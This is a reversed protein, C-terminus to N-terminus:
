LKEFFEKFKELTYKIMEDTLAPHCGIFFTGFMAKDTNDLNNSIRYKIGKYAPQKTINGAFFPRTEIENDNLYKTFDERSFGKNEKVTLPISFWCPDAGEVSKPLILFDEFEKLGEFLKKFNIKRRKIIIEPLKKIQEIGMAAQLDLPKLNYGINSFIYKHDYGQPLDGLKWGFRKNCTNSKYPECWCDRGWDRISELIRKLESNNTVVMGGEGTSIHHSLYFSFTAMDGFTGLKKGKYESGLADCSDEIVFLNHKDAIEMIKDMDNPNGLTHPLMILRTKETIAAEIDEPKMNYTGLEIDVFVPILNNILIVNLTTPFTAAPTIVENGDNLVLLREKGKKITGDFMNSKLSSVAILNASSGSNVYISYNTNLFKSFESEFEKGLNGFAIKQDLISSVMAKLEKEDWMRWVYKVYPKPIIIGEEKSIKFYDEVKNLIENKLENLKSNDM